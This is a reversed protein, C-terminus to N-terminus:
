ECSMFRSTRNNTNVMATYYGLKKTDHFADRRIGSFGKLFIRKGTGRRRMFLQVMHRCWVCAKEEMKYNMTMTMTMMTITKTNKPIKSQLNHKRFPRRWITLARWVLFKRRGCAMKIQFPNSGFRPEMRSQNTNYLIIPVRCEVECGTSIECTWHLLLQHLLIQTFSLM